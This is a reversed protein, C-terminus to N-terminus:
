VPSTYRDPVQLADGLEKLAQHVYSADPKNSGTCEKILATMRPMITEQHSKLFDCEHRARSMCLGGSLSATPPGMVFENLVLGLSLIDSDTKDSVLTAKEFDSIIGVPLSTRGGQYLINSPILNGHIIGNAHLFILGKVAGILVELTSLFTVETQDKVQLMDAMSGSYEEMVIATIRESDREGEYVFGHILVVNPSLPLCLLLNATQKEQIASAKHEDAYTKVVYRSGRHEKIQIRGCFGPYKLTRDETPVTFNDEEFRKLQRLPLLDETPPPSPARHLVLLSVHTLNSYLCSDNTLACQLPM